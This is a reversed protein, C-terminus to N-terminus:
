ERPQQFDDLPHFRREVIPQSQSGRGVELVVRFVLLKSLYETLSDGSLKSARGVEDRLSAPFPVEFSKIEGPGLTRASLDYKSTFSACEVSLPAVLRSVVPDLQIQLHM